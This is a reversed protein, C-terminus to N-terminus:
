EGRALRQKLRYISDSWSREMATDTIWDPSCFVCDSVGELGYNGKIMSIKDRDNLSVRSKVTIRVREHGEEKLVKKLYKVYQVIMEPRTKMSDVQKRTLRRTPRERWKEGTDLNTIFFVPTSGRKSRLKMRWSFVHGRENWTVDGSYLHHRLPMLVNYGVFLILVWQVWAGPAFIPAPNLGKIPNLKELGMKRLFVIPFDPGLFLLTTAISFWPFIGIQFLFHNSIHFLTICVFAILRTRKFILAPVIFLDLLVGCWSIVLAAADRKLFEGIVPVTHHKDLWLNLPVGTLWDPDIKAIGGFFYVVGMLFCLLSHQWFPVVSSAKVRKTLQDLSLAHHPDIFCMAFSMLCVFYFHNLYNAQEILFIYSFLITFLIISVRYFFGMTILFSAVGIAAWIAYFAEGPLDPLWDFGYFKFHFEPRVFKKFVWGKSFYRYVEWMMISGFLVRFWVLGAISVPEMLKEKIRM